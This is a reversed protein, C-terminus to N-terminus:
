VGGFSEKLAKGLAASAEHVIAPGAAKIRSEAFHHAHVPGGPHKVARRFVTKGGAQFALVGALKPKIPHPQIRGGQELMAPIGKLRIALQVYDVQVFTGTMSVASNLGAPKVGWIRRGFATRTSVDQKIASVIPAAARRLGRTLENRLIRVLKKTNADFPKVGQLETSLSIV